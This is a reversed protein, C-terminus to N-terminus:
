TLLPQDDRQRECITACNVFKFSGRTLRKLFPVMPGVYSATCLSACHVIADINVTTSVKKTELEVKETGFLRGRWDSIVRQRKISM